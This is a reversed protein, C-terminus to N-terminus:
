TSCTSCFNEGLEMVEPNFTGHQIPHDATSSGCSVVDIGYYGEVFMM